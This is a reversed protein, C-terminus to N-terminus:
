GNKQAKKVFISFLLSVALFLPYYLNLILALTPITIGASRAVGTAILIQAGYPIIGQVACSM